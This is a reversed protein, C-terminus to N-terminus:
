RNVREKGAESEGQGITARELVVRFGTDHGMSTPPGSNRDASRCTAVSRYWGGGRNVVASGAPPGRPDQSPSNKYYDKDYFDACWEWVNGHMDYLGFANPLYSGVATPRGLNKGKVTTGYPSSGNCNAADGNLHEGFHFPKTTGARCAYEWEAETPLRYTKGEKATLKECFKM